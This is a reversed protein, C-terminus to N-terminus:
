APSSDSGSEPGDSALSAIFAEVKEPDVDGFYAVVGGSEEDVVAVWGPEIDVPDSTVFQWLRPKSHAM